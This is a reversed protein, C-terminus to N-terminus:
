HQLIESQMFAILATYADGRHDTQITEHVRVKSLDTEHFGRDGYTLEAIVPRTSDTYM